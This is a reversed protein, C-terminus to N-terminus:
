ATIKGPGIKGYLSVGENLVANIFPAGLELRKLIERAGYVKPSVEVSHEMSVEFAIGYIEKMDGLNWEKVVVLIDVDSDERAEGRVVSGFLIIGGIKGSYRDLVRRLFEDVAKKYRKEIKMAKNKVIRQVTNM